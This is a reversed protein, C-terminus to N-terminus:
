TVSGLPNFTIAIRRQISLRSRTSGNEDTHVDGSKWCNKQQAGERDERLFKLRMRRHPRKRLTGRPRESVGKPNQMDIRDLSVVLGSISRFLARPFRDGTGSLLQLRAVSENEFATDIVLMGGNADPCARVPRDDDPRRGSLKRNEIATQRLKQQIGPFGPLRELAAGFALVPRSLRIRTESFLVAGGIHM